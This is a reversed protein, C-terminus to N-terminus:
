FDSIDLVCSMRDDVVVDALLKGSDRELPVDAHRGGLVPIKFGPGGSHSAKLGWWVGVPDIVVCPLHHSLMEEAMVVATTTKGAGRVALIGFTQTIADNPIQLDDSIELM